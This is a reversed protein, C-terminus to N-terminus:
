RHPSLVRRLDPLQPDYDEGEILYKCLSPVFRVADGLCFPQTRIPGHSPHWPRLALGLLRGAYRYHEKIKELAGSADARLCRQKLWSRECGVLPIPNIRIMEDKAPLFLGALPSFVDDALKNLWLQFPGGEDVAVSRAEDVVAENELPEEILQVRFPLNLRGSSALANLYDQAKSGLLIDSIKVSLSRRATSQDVVSHLVDSRVLEALLSNVIDVM